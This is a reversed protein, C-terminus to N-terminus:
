VESSLNLVFNNKIFFFIFLFLDIILFAYYNSLSANPTKFFRHVTHNLVKRFSAKGEDIDSHSM